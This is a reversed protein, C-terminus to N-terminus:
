GAEAGQEEGPSMGLDDVDGFLDGVTLVLDMVVEDFADNDGIIVHELPVELTVDRRDRIELVRHGLPDCLRRYERDYAARGGTRDGDIPEGVEDGFEPGCWSITGRHPFAM